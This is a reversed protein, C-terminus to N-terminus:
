GASHGPVVRLSLSDACRCAISRQNEIGEFYGALPMRVYVGPPILPQGRSEGTNYYRECRREIWRDFDAEALLANLKQDFPHGAPKPPADSMIFVSEQRQRLKDMATM